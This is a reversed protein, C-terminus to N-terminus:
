VNKQAKVITMISPLISRDIQAESDWLKGGMIAKACHFYMSKVKVKIVIKAAKKGDPCLTLLEDDTHISAIGKVRVVEDIGNVMFLLGINPNGIINKLSDVRNNGPSDPILITESDIAKIFGIQGGKPSIDPFHNLDTTALLAFSSNKIFTMAYEDLTDMVKNEVLPHPPNYLTSLQELSTIENM